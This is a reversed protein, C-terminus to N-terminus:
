KSKELQKKIWRWFKLVDVKVVKPKIAQPGTDRETM